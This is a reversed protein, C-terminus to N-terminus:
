IKSPDLPPVDKNLQWVKFNLAAAVSVWALYPVFALGAWFDLQFHAVTACAVSVWLPVMVLLAGKMRRLGFFVPTWLTSFAAQMAWFALAYGSGEIVAVRAGAFSILLYISSWAVPFAWDPPTWGPKDLTKYWEGPPFAAGTAGAAACTVFFIAFLLIDM